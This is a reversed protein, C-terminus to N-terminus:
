VQRDHKNNCRVGHRVGISVVDISVEANNEILVNKHFGPLQIQEHGHCRRLCPM